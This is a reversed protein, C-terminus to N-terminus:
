GALRAVWDKLSYCDTTIRHMVFDIFARVRLPMNDRSAYCLYLSQLDAAFQPMLLTLEGNRVHDGCYYGDMQFVGAGALGAAMLTEPDNFLLKGRTEFRRTEGDITFAWSWQERSSPFRYQLCNHDLLDQPHEPAGHAELYAPAALTYVPLRSLPRAIMTSDAPAGIRISLDVPDAVLDRVADSADLDVEVGPHAERFELVLPVLTRYAFRKPASIRLPGAVLGRSELFLHDIEDLARLPERAREFLLSGEPTLSMKRTTRNFLKIGYEDELRKVNQGVAAPSIGLDRSAAAFSGLEATKIFSGLATSAHRSM